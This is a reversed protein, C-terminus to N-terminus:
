TKSAGKALDEYISCVREAENKINFVSDRFTESQERREFESLPLFGNLKEFWTEVDLPIYEGRNIQVERTVTDSTFFPLGAAQGEVLIVPLGEKLSPLIVADSAFLYPAIEPTKDIFICLDNVGQASIGQEFSQRTPGNGIFIFKVKKGAAKFKSIVDLLFMHNKIPSYNSVHVFVVNDKVGLREKEAAAAEHDYLFRSCDVANYILEVPHSSCFEKGYLFHAAETSCAFFCNAYKKIQKVLYFNILNKLKNVSFMTSHSHVIRVPIGCQKAYKLTFMAITPSHLHVIDYEKGHEAFFKRCRLSALCLQKPSLFNGTYFVKGGRRLIEEEYSEEQRKCVLFDMQFRNLNMNQYLNLVISSIGSIISLNDLICLVKM